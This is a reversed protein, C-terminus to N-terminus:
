GSRKRAYINAFQDIVRTPDLPAGNVNDSHYLTYGSSVLPDTIARSDKGAHTLLYPNIEVLMDPANARALLGRMGALALPEAGEIDMKILKVRAIKQAEVYEDVTIMPVDIQNPKKGDVVVTAWGSNEDKDDPFHLTLTGPADGVAAQNVVIHTLANLAIAGRLKDANRPMPEFAHVRGTAGVAGAGILSYFGVNAGIDFFVDGPQLLRRVLAVEGTDYLGFYIQRQILDNMDLEVRYSGVTGILRDTKQTLARAAVEALVYRGKIPVNATFARVTQLLTRQLANM